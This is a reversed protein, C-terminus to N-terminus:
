LASSHRVDPGHSVVHEYTASSNYTVGVDAVVGVRPPLVTRQVGSAPPLHGTCHWILCHRKEMCKNSALLRHAQAFATSTGMCNQAGSSQAQWWEYRYFQKVDEEYQLTQKAQWTSAPRDLVPHGHASLDIWCMNHWVASKVCLELAINLELMCLFPACTVPYNGAYPKISSNLMLSFEGSLGKSPDGM